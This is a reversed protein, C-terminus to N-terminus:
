SVLMQGRRMVLLVVIKSTMAVSFETFYQITSHKKYRPYGYPLSTTSSARHTSMAKAISTGDQRGEQTQTREAQLESM